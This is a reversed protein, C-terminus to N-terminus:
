SSAHVSVTSASRANAGKSGVTILFAVNTKGERSHSTHLLPFGVILSSNCTCSLHKRECICQTGFWVTSSADHSKRTKSQPQHDFSSSFHQSSPHRVHQIGAMNGFVRRWKLLSVNMMQANLKKMQAEGATWRAMKGITMPRQSHITQDRNKAATPEGALAHCVETSTDWEDRDM